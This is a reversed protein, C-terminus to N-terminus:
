CGLTTPVILPALRCLLPGFSRYGLLHMIDGLSVEEREESSNSIEKLLPELKTPNQEKNMLTLVYFLQFFNQM